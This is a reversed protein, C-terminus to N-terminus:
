FLDRSKRKVIIEGKIPEANEAQIEYQVKGSEGDFRNISFTSIVLKSKPHVSHRGGRFEYNRGIYMWEEPDSQNGDAGFVSVKFDAPRPFIGRINRAIGDGDNYITLYLMTHEARGNPDNLVVPENNAQYNELTFRLRAKPVNELQRIIENKKIVVRISSLIIGLLLVSVYLERPFTLVNFLGAVIGLFDAIFFTLFVWDEVIERFAHFYKRM